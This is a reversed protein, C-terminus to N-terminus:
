RHAVAHTLVSYAQIGVPIFSELVTTSVYNTNMCYSHQQQRNLM